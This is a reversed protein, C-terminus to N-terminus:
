KNRSKSGEAEIYERIGPDNLKFQTQKPPAPTQSEGTQQRVTPNKTGKWTGAPNGYQNKAKWMGSAVGNQITGTMEGTYAYSLLFGSLTARIEGTGPNITGSATGTFSSNQYAGTINANISGNTVVLDIKGSASGGSITCIYNGNFGLSSEPPKQELRAELNQVYKVRGPEPVLKVSEKFIGLAEGTRKQNYLATGENWLKDATDRVTKQKALATEIDQVFKVKEPTSQYKM